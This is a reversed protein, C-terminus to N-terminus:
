INLKTPTSCVIIICRAIPVEKEIIIGVDMIDVFVCISYLATSNLITLDNPINIQDLKYKRNEMHGHKEYHMISNIKNKCVNYVDSNLALYVEWDFDLVTFAYYLAPVMIIGGGVGLLGAIFGAGAAAAALVALLNLIENINLNEM